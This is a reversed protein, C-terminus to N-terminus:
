KKGFLRKWFSTPKKSSENETNTNQNCSCNSTSSEPTIPKFNKLNPDQYPNIDGFMWEIKKSLEEKTETKDKEYSDVCCVALCQPENAFNFCETCKEEVIYYHDEKIPTNREEADILNGKLDKVIGTLNTADSFSWSTGGEYIAGNPCEPECAGCNLCEDTIKLSM